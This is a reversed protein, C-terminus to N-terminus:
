LFDLALPDPGPIMINSVM